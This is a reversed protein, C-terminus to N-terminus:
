YGLYGAGRWRGFADSIIEEKSKARYVQKKWYGIRMQIYRWTEFYAKNLHKNINDLSLIDKYLFSDVLEKLIVSESGPNCVVEPYYGYIMRHPILRLEELLNTHSVMESFSIPFMRFERKRGALSESVKSALEFSSSGTAIVQVDKIQDTILKLRLGIDPIRQAEDVILTKANGLLAKLRTSTMQGFLEQVDLDDGTMWLINDRDRFITELLTSKGVQRAGM